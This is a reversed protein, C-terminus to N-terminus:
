EGEYHGVFLIIGHDKESILYIFPRNAHFVANKVEQEKGSSTAEWHTVAAAE